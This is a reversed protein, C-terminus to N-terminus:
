YADLHIYDTFEKIATQAKEFLEIAKKDGKVFKTFGEISIYNMLFYGLGEMDICGCLEEWVADPLNRM